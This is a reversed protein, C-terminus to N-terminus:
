HLPCTYVEVSLFVHSFTKNTKVVAMTRYLRLCCDVYTCATNRLLCPCFSHAALMVMWTPSCSEVVPFVFNRFMRAVVFVGGGLRLPIYFVDLRTAAIM